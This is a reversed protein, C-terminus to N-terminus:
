LIIFYELSFKLSGEEALPVKEEKLPLFICFM